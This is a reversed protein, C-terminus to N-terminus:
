KEPDLRALKNGPKRDKPNKRAAVMSWKQCNIATGGRGKGEIPEQHSKKANTM